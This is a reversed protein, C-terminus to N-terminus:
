GPVAKGPTGKCASVAANYTITDPPVGERPMAELLGLATETEGADGCAKLTAAYSM